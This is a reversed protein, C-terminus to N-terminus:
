DMYEDNRKRAKALDFDHNKEVFAGITLRHAPQGPAANMHGIVVTKATISKVPGYYVLNYSGYEAMDGVKFERVDTGTSAHAMDLHVIRVSEGATVVAVALDYLSEDGRFGLPSKKTVVVANYVRTEAKSIRVAVNPQGTLRYYAARLILAYGFEDGREGEEIADAAVLLASLEGARVHSEYGAPLVYRTLYDNEVVAAVKKRLRLQERIRGFEERAEDTSDFGVATHMTPSMSRYGESKYLRVVATGTRYSVVDATYGGGTYADPGGGLLSGRMEGILHGGRIEVTESLVDRMTEVM